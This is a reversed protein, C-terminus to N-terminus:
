RAELIPITARPLTPYLLLRLTADACRDRWRILM